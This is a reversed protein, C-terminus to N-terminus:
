PLVARRRATELEAMAGGVAARLAGDDVACHLLAALASHLEALLEHEPSSAPRPAPELEDSPARAVLMVLPAPSLGAGTIAADYADREHVAWGVREGFQCALVAVHDPWQRLQGLYRDFSLEMGLDRRTREHLLDASLCRAPARELLRTAHEIMESDV